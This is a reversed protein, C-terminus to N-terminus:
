PDPGSFGVVTWVQNIYVCICVCCHACVTSTPASPPNSWSNILTNTHNGTLDPNNEHTWSPIIQSSNNVQCPNCEPFDKELLGVTLSYREKKKLIYPNCKHPGTCKDVTTIPIHPDSLPPVTNPSSPSPHEEFALTSPWTLSAWRRDTSPTLSTTWPCQSSTRGCVWVVQLSACPSMSCNFLMLPIKTGKVYRIVHSRYRCRLSKDALLCQDVSTWMKCHCCLCHQLVNSMPETRAKNAM